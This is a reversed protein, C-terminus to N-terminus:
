PVLDWKSCSFLEWPVALSGVQQLSSPLDQIGCRLGPVAFYINLFCGSQSQREGQFHSM